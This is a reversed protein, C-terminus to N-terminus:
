EPEQDQRPGEDEGGTLDRLERDVDDAVGPSYQGPNEGPHVHGRLLVFWERVQADELSAHGWHGLDSKDVFQIGSGDCIGFKVPTEMGEPLMEALETLGDILIGITTGRGGDPDRNM